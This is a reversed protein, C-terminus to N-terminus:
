LVNKQNEGDDAEGDTQACHEHTVTLVGHQIHDLAAKLSQAANEEDNVVDQHEHTVLGGVFGASLVILCTQDGNIM